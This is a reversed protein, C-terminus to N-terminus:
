SRGLCYTVILHNQDKPLKESRMIDHMQINVSGPIHEADYEINSLPNLLLLKEGGDMKAKLQKATIEPYDDAHTSQVILFTFTLFFAAAPLWRLYVRKM